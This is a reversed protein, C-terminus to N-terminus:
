GRRTTFQRSGYPPLLPLGTRIRRPGAVTVPSRVGSGYTVAAKLPPQFSRSHASGPALLSEGGTVDFWPASGSHPSRGHGARACPRGPGRVPSVSSPHRGRKRTRRRARSGRRGARPRDAGRAGRRRSRAPRPARQLPPHPAVVPEAARSYVASHAPPATPAAAARRAPPVRGRRATRRASRPEGGPRHEAAGRQGALRPRDAGRQLGTVQGGGPLPQRVQAPPVRRREVRVLDRPGHDLRDGLVGRVRHDARQHPAPQAAHGPQDAEAGDVGQVRHDPVPRGRYARKPQAEARSSSTTPQGPARSVAARATSHPGCGREASAVQRRSAPRWGLGLAPGTSAANAPASRSRSPPVARGVAAAGLVPRHEARGEAAGSRRRCGARRGATAGPRREPATSRPPARRSGGAPVTRAARAARGARLPTFPEHPPQQHGAGARVRALAHDRRPDAAPQDPLPHADSRELALVHRQVGEDRPLAGLDAPGLGHLRLGGAHLRGRQHVRHQELGAAVAAALHDHQAPRDALQARAAVM